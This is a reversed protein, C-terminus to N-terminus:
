NNRVNYYNPCSDFELKKVIFENKGKAVLDAALRNPLIPNYRGSSDRVNGEYVITTGSAAGGGRALEKLYSPNNVNRFFSDCRGNFIDTENIRKINTLLKREKRKFDDYYQNIDGFNNQSVGQYGLPTATINRRNAM